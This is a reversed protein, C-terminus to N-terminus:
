AWLRKELLQTTPKLGVDEAEEAVRRHIGWFVQQGVTNVESVM